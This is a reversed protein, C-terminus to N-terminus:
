CGGSGAALTDGSPGRLDNVLRTAQPKAGLSECDLLTSFIAKKVLQLSAEDAGRARLSQERELLRRLRALFLSVLPDGLRGARPRGGLAFADFPDM